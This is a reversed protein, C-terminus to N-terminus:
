RGARREDAPRKQSMCFRLAHMLDRQFCLESPLPVDLSALTEAVPPNVGAVVGRAGLLEISRLMKALHLATSPDIEDVGTLELIAFGSQTEVIKHLLKDMIETARRGDVSGMIPLALVGDWVQMIPTSLTQIAEGQAQIVNRLQEEHAIVEHLAEEAHKRELTVAFMEGVAQLLLRAGDDWPKVERIADIGLVGVLRGAYAAPVRLLSRIGMRELPARAAPLLEAVSPVDVAEFAQLRQLLWALEEGSAAREASPPPVSDRHWVRLDVLSQGDAAIVMLGCRDAGTVRGLEALAADFGRDVDALAADIFRSCISAVLMKAEIRQMLAREVRRERDVNRAAGYVLREGPVGLLSWSLKVYAGSRTRCRNELRLKPAEVGRTALRDLADRTADVDAPHVLDLLGLGRLAEDGHGLIQEWAANWRAFVGAPGLVCLLEPCVAFFRSLDHESAGAGM